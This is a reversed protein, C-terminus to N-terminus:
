PADGGELLIKIAGEIHLLAETTKSERVYLEASITEILLEFPTRWDDESMGYLDMWTTAVRYFKEESEESDDLYIVNREALGDIVEPALDWLTGNELVAPM